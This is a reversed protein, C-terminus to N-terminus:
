ECLAGFEARLAAVEHRLQSVMLSQLKKPNGPYGALIRNATTKPDSGTKECIELFEAILADTDSDGSPAPQPTQTPTLYEDRSDDPAPLSKPPEFACELAALNDLSANIDLKLVYIEVKRGNAQATQPVLLLDVWVGSIRKNGRISQLLDIGTNINLISNFSTTNIQFVQIGPLGKIFFQLSAMQKCGNARAFDCHEPGPCDVEHLNGKDDARQAYEGDGKCKLGASAGYAKYYQPFIEEQTEGAFAVTIRNPKEGYLQHFLATAEESEFDPIFHDSKEPYETGRQNKTKRGLRIHGGRTFRRRDSLGKIPM